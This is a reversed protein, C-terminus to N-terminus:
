ARQSKPEKGKEKKKGKGKGKERKMQGKGKSTDSKRKKKRKRRRQAFRGTHALGSARLAEAAQEAARLAAAIASRRLAAAGFARLFKEGDEQPARQAFPIGWAVAASGEPCLPNGLPM